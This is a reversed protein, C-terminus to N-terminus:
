DKLLSFMCMFLLNIAAASTKSNKATWFPKVWVEANGGDPRSVTGGEPEAGGWLPRVGERAGEEGEREGEAGASAAGEAGASAEGAAGLRRAGEAGACLVGEAGEPPAEAAAPAAAWGSLPRYILKISPGLM